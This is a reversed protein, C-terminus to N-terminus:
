NANIVPKAIDWPGQLENKYKQLFLFYAPMLFVIGIVCVLWYLLFKVGLLHTILYNVLNFLVFYVLWHLTVLKNRRANYDFLPLLINMQIAFLVFFFVQSTSNLRSALVISNSLSINTSIIPKYQHRSVDSTTSSMSYDYIITNSLCLIFSLAWISDSSSSKTLSKLVPSLILLIFIILIFSKMNLKEKTKSEGRSDGESIRLTIFGLISLVSSALTPLMSSWQYLYIGTFMLVVLLLSSIYFVILSFDQVLKVYSYNAVATNRKLQSLFSSDTYNDPFRQNLFLLKKWPQQSRRIIPTSRGRSLLDHPFPPRPSLSRFRSRLELPVDPTPSRSSGRSTELM